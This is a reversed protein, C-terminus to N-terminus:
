ILLGCKKTHAPFKVKGLTHFQVFMGLYQHSLVHCHLTWVGVNNAVFRLALWSYPLVPQTNRYPPDVLNFTKPDAVPDFTGSGNGLVWYSHGHLHWPHYESNNVTLTNSNQLIVDVVAGRRFSYLRTGYTANPNPPPKTYDFAYAPRGPAPRSDYLGLSNIKNLPQQVAQLLPTSTHLTSVNNVAWRIKGAIKNQTGVLILRTAVNKPVSQKKLSKYLKVQELSSATDNWIPSLPPTSIPDGPTVGAYSLVALGQPTKPLRGRVSTSVWYNGAPQDAKLLFEVTQGSFIDLQDVTFPKLLNSDAQVVEMSHNEFVLNLMSLSAVSSVRVRYTKGQEVTYTARACQPSSANCSLEDVTNPPDITPIRSCDYKGRGDFLLSQPEGVFIFPLHDLGAAQQDISQHWWDNLIISIEGDYKYPFPRRPHEYVVLKGYLGGSRQLGLHGHYMFTGAKPVLFRYSYVEGTGIPCQTVAANGDNYPTGVQPIGHWHIVLEDHALSNKVNVVVTDGETATIDPGPYQGNILFIQKSVCDASWLGYTVELNYVKTAARALSAVSLVVLFRVAAQVAGLSEAM